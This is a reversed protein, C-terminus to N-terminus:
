IMCKENQKENRIKLSDIQDYRLDTRAQRCRHIKKDNKETTM